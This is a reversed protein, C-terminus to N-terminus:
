APGPFASSTVSSFSRSAITCRRLSFGVSLSTSM